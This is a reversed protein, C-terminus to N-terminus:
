KAIDKQTDSKKPRARNSRQELVYSEDTLYRGNTRPNNSQNKTM